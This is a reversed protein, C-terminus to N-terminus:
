DDLRRARRRAAEWHRDDHIRIPDGHPVEVVVHWDAPKVARELMRVSYGQGTIEYALRMADPHQM